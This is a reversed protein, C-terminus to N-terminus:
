GGLEVIILGRMYMGASGSVTIFDFIVPRATHL